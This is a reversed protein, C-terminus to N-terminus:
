GGPAPPLPLRVGDNHILYMSDDPGDEGGLAFLEKDSAVLAVFFRRDDPGGWRPPYIWVGLGPDYLLPWSAKNYPAAYPTAPDAMKGTAIAYRGGAWAVTADTCSISASIQGKTSIATWTSTAKSYVAGTPLELPLDPTTTGWVMFGQPSGIGKSYYEDATTPPVGPVANWTKTPVHLQLTVKSAGMGVPWPGSKAAKYVDYVFVDDGSALMLGPVAIQGQPLLTPPPSVDETQDTDPDYLDCGGDGCAVLKGAAFVRIGGTALPKWTDTTPDYRFSPWVSPTGSVVLAETGTWFVGTVGYSTAFAVENPPVSVPQWGKTGYPDWREGALQSASSDGWHKDAFYLIEKGTWVAKGKFSPNIMPATPLWPCAGCYCPYPAPCAPSCTTDTVAVPAPVATETCKLTNDFLCVPTSNAPLPVSSNLTSAPLCPAPVYAADPADQADEVDPTAVLDPTATLDPAIDPLEPATDIPPPTDPQADVLTDSLDPLDVLDALGSDYGADAGADVLVPKQGALPSTCAVAVVSVLAIGLFRRLSM